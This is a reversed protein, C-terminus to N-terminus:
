SERERESPSSFHSVYSHLVQTASTPSSGANHHLKTLEPHHSTLFPSLSLSLVLLLLFLLLLFVCGYVRGVVQSRELHAHGNYLFTDDVANNDGKTM